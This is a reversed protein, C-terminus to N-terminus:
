YKSHSLQSTVVARVIASVSIQRAKALAQLLILESETIYFYQRVKVQDSKPRGPKRSISLGEDNEM